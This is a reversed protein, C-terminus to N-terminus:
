IHCVSDGCMFMFFSFIPLLFPAFFFMHLCLCFSCFFFLVKKIKTDVDMRIIERYRLMHFTAPYKGTVNMKGQVEGKVDM